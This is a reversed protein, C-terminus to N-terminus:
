FLSLNEELFCVCNELICSNMSIIFFCGLALLEAATDCTPYLYPMGPAQM